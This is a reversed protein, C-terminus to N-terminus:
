KSAQDVARAHLKFSYNEPDYDVQDLLIKKDKRLDQKLVINEALCIPIGPDTENDVCNEILGYCSYGGIGDLVEGKRLDRKAYAYVNTQFGFNSKLV